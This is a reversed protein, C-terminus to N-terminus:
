SVGMHDGRSKLPSTDMRHPNLCNLGGLLQSKPDVAMQSEGCLRQKVTVAEPHMWIYICVGVPLCIYM